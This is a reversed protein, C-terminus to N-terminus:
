QEIETIKEMIKDIAKDKKEVLKLYRRQDNEYDPTPNRVFIKEYDRSFRERIEDIKSKLNKIRRAHEENYDISRIKLGFFVDFVAEGVSRERLAWDREGYVASILKNYSYSGALSPAAQRWIQTGLKKLYESGEDLDQVTLEQGTFLIENFAVEAVTIFLPHSPLFPRGVFHSQGWQEAVDGWPLVFSLDLYKSRDYDDRYFVRLHSLQGPLVTKRMYDPLIRKEREVEEESEGYMRRTIEEVAFLMAGITAIKWPRRIATEAFRPIAKYSFTIFPSYWRKAWRIAPPIKQYNFIYKEAGKAAEKITAGGLRRHTYVVLKFYQEIGQYVELPKNAVTKILRAAHAIMNGDKIESVDKLFEEVEGGIWEKGFLATEKYAEEWYGSKTLFDRAARAYIDVRWPSVGAFYALILNSLCNRSQTAPNFPVKGIKWWNMIKDYVKLIESVHKVAENLDDWIYPDVMAGSLKGLRDTMPLPKFDKYHERLKARAKINMVNDWEKPSIAWKRNEAIRNFMQMMFMDHYEESLGKYVLYPAQKIEGLHTRYEHSLDKRRVNYGKKLRPRKTAYRELRTLFNDEIEISAYARRLYQKGSMKYHTQIRKLIESRERVAKNIDKILSGRARAMMSRSYTKITEIAKTITKTATKEITTTIEKLTGEKGELGVVSEKVRAIMQDAEGEAFGRDKLAEKIREENKKTWKSSNTKYTGTKTETVTKLIENKTYESITRLVKGRKIIPQLRKKFMKIKDDLAKVEKFKKALEKRTLQRFINDPGLIGLRTLEEELMKFKKVAEFAAEYREPMQTISGKIIQSIRVQEPKPFKKMIDALEKAATRAQEIKLLTDDRLEIFDPDKRYDYIIGKNIANVLKSRKGLGVPLTESFAKWVPSGIYKDYTRGLAKSAKALEHIPVGSYLTTGSKGKFLGAQKPQWIGEQKFESTAQRAVKEKAKLKERKVPKEPPKPGMKEKPGFMKEKPKIREPGEKPVKKEPPKKSKPKLDPHESYIEEVGPVGEAQMENLVEKVKSEPLSNGSYGRGRVNYLSEGKRTNGIWTVTIGEESKVLERWDDLYKRMGRSVANIDSTTDLRMGKFAKDKIQGMINNIHRSEKGPKAKSLLDRRVGDVFSEIAEYDGRKVWQTGKPAVGEYGRPPLTSSAALAKSRMEQVAKEVQEAVTKLNALGRKGSTASLEKTKAKPLDKKLVQVKDLPKLEITEGDVLTVSFPDKETVEYVDWGTATKGEILTLKKGKPLDEARMAVYKGKPPEEPEFEMEKEFKKEAESKQYEKKEAVDVALRDRSLIAENTRMEELFSAVTADKDLWGDDRLQRVADDLPVGGKKFMFQANKPLDKVEGKFNLPDIKGMHKIWGRLTRINKGKDFVKKKPPEIKARYNGSDIASVAGNLGAYQGVTKNEKDVINYLNKHQKAIKLDKYEVYSKATLTKEGKYDTYELKKMRRKPKVVGVGEPAVDTREPAPTPKEVPTLGPHGKGRKWELPESIKKAEAIDQAAKTRAPIDKGAYDVDATGHRFIVKVDYEKGKADKVRIPNENFYKELRKVNEEATKKTSSVFGFEDGGTRAGKLKLKKMADGVHTLMQDGAAYGVKDNLGKFGVLDVFTYPAKKGTKAVRDMVKMIGSRNRLGTLPDSIIAKKLRAIEKVKKINMRRLEPIVFRQEEPSMEEVAKRLALDRREGKRKEAVGERAEAKIRRDTIGWKKKTDAVAKELTADSLKDADVYFTEKGVGAVDLNFMEKNIDPWYDKYEVGYKKALAEKETRKEIAKKPKEPAVLKEPPKELVPKEEKAAIEAEKKTLEALPSPRKEKELAAAVEKGLKTKPEPPKPGIPKEEAVPPKPKVEPEPKAPPRAKAKAEKLNARKVAEAQGRLFEEATEDTFQAGAERRKLIKAKYKNLANRDTLKKLAKLIDNESAGQAEMGKVLDEATQVVLQRRGPEMYRWLRSDTLVNIGLGLGKIIAHAGAMEMGMTTLAEGVVQGLERSKLEGKKYNVKKTGEPGLDHFFQATEGLALGGLRAISTSKEELVGEELIDAETVPGPAQAIARGPIFLPEFAKALVEPEGVPAPGFMPDEARREREVKTEEAVQLGRILMDAAQTAIELREEPTYVRQLEKTKTMAKMAEPQFKGEPSPRFRDLFKDKKSEIAELKVRAKDTLPDIVEGMKKEVSPIDLAGGILEPLNSGEAAMDTPAMDIGLDPTETPVEPLSALGVEGSGEFDFDDFTEAPEDYAEFDFESAEPVEAKPTVPKKDKGYRAQVKKIYDQTEKFPPIGKHKEVNTPGANYRALALPIDGGSAELQEAIYRTGGMINEYPDTIDKVGLGKATEPMLQMLGKAGKKSTAKPKGASEVSIIARILEPDVGHAESAESIIADYDAEKPKTKKPKTPVDFGAEFDFAKNLM